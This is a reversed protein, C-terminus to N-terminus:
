VENGKFGNYVGVEKMEGWSRESRKVEVPIVLPEGRIVVPVALESCVLDVVSAEADLGVGLVMADHVQLLLHATKPLQLDVRVLSRNLYEACTSQPLFAYGKRFLEEGMRGLFTRRRNFPTTLTRTQELQDRVWAQYDLIAPCSRFFMSRLEKGRAVSVGLMEALHNPGLGYGCGLVVPKVLDREAKTIEKPDKGFM